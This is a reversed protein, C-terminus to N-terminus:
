LAILLHEAILLKVLGRLNEATLRPKVDRVMVFPLRALTMIRAMRTREFTM